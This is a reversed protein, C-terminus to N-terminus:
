LCHVRKEKRLVLNPLATLECGPNAAIGGVVFSLALVVLAATGWFTLTSTGIVFILIFTGVGFLVRTVRGLALPKLKAFSSEDNKM